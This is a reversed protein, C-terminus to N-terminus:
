ASKTGGPIPMPVAARRVAGRPACQPDRVAGGRCCNEGLYGILDNMAHLDARYWVFRGQQRPVVLGARWLEKLHFSLSAPAVDLRAAIQGAPLGDPAHEVLLRYVALRTEQALAALALMAASLEM